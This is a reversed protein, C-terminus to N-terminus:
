QDRVAALNGAPDEARGPAESDASDSNEGVSINRRLM